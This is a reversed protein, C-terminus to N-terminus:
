VVCEQPVWQKHKYHWRCQMRLPPGLEGDDDDSEEGMDLDRNESISRFLSNLQVSRDYTDILALGGGLDYTDSTPLPTVQFVAYKEDYVVVTAGHVCKVCQIKYPADFYPVLAQKAKQFKMQTPLYQPCELSAVVEDLTSDGYMLADATFVRQALIGTLVTGLALRSPFAAHVPCIMTGDVIFCINKSKCYTFWIFVRKGQPLATYVGGDRPEKVKVEVPLSLKPFRRLENRYDTM